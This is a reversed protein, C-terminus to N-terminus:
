VKKFNNYEDFSLGLAWQVLDSLEKNITKSDSSNYLTKDVIEKVRKPSYEVIERDYINLFKQFSSLENAEINSLDQDEVCMEVFDLYVKVCDSKPLFFVDQALSNITKNNSNLKQLLNSIEYNYSGKSVLIEIKNLFFIKFRM